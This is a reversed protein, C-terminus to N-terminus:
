RGVARMAVASWRPRTYSECGGSLTGKRTPMQVRTRTRAPTTGVRDDIEIIMVGVSCCNRSHDGEMSCENPRRGPPLIPM